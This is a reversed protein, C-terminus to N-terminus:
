VESVNPIIYDNPNYNEDSLELLVIDDVPLGFLRDGVEAQEDWFYYYENEYENMACVYQLPICLKTYFLRYEGSFYTLLIKNREKCAKIFSEKIGTKNKM